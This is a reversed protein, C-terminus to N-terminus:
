LPHINSWQLLAEHPTLNECYWDFADKKDQTSLSNGYYTYVLGAFKDLWMEFDMTFLRGTVCVDDM